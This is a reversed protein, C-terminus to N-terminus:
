WVNTKDCNTQLELTAVDVNVVGLTAPSALTASM